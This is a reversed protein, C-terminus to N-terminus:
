KFVDTCVDCRMMGTRISEVQYNRALFHIRRRVDLTLVIRLGRANRTRYLQLRDLVGGIARPELEADEGRARLAVEAEKAVENVHIGQVSHGDSFEHGPSWEHCRALLVEIVVCTLDTWREARLEEERHQLLHRVGAQIEESDVICTGLMRAIVRSESDLDPLDFVSDHVAAFNRLRYDVFKAQFDATMQDRMKEDLMTVSQRSPLLHIHLSFDPSFDAVPASGLYIAKPLAVDVVSEKCPVHARPGCYSLLRRSRRSLYRADILLTPRLGAVARLVSSDIEVMPLGRRVLCGLLQLFVTAETTPGTIM